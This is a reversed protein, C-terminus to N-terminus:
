KQGGKSPKSYYYDLWEKASKVATCNPFKEVLQEFAVTIAREAESESMVGFRLLWKYTKAIRSQASPASKYEPWNDVVKQYYKIAKEYQGLRGYCVASFFCAEATIYGTEPLQTIIRECEAITQQYYWNAQEDLGERTRRFLKAIIDM